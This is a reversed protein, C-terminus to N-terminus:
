SLWPDRKGKTTAHSMSGGDVRQMLQCALAGAGVVCSIDHKKVHMRWLEDYSCLDYGM